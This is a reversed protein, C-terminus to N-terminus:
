VFLVHRVIVNKIHSRTYRSHSCRSSSYTVKKCQKRISRYQNRLCPVLYLVTYLFHRSVFRHQSPCPNGELFCRGFNNRLARMGSFLLAMWERRASRLRVDLYNSYVQLLNYKSQWNYTHTNIHSVWVDSFYDFWECLWIWRLFGVVMAVVANKAM